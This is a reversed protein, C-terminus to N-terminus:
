LLARVFLQVTPDSLGSTDWIHPRMNGCRCPVTVTGAANTDAPHSWGLPVTLLARPVCTDEVHGGEDSRPSPWFLTCCGHTRLFLHLSLPLHALHGGCSPGGPERLPLCPFQSM